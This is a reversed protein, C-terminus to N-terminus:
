PLLNAPTRRWRGSVVYLFLLYYVTEKTSCLLNQMYTIFYVWYECFPCSVSFYQDRKGWKSKTKREHFTNGGCLKKKNRGSMAYHCNHIKSKCFDQNAKCKNNLSMTLMSATHCESGLVNRLLRCLKFVHSVYVAGHISHSLLRTESKNVSEYLTYSCEVFWYQVYM